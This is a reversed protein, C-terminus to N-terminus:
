TSGGRSQRECPPENIPRPADIHTKRGSTIPQHAKENIQKNQAKKIACKLEVGMYKKYTDRLVIIRWYM